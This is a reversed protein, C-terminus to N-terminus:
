KMTVGLENVVFAMVDATEDIEDELPTGAGHGTNQNTRLLV